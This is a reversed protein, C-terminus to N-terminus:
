PTVERVGEEPPLADVPAITDVPGVPAPIEGRLWRTVERSGRVRASDSAVTPAVAHMAFTGMNRVTSNETAVWEGTILSDNEARGAFRYEALGEIIVSDDAPSYRAIVAEMMDSGYEPPHGGDRVLYARGSIGDEPLSFVDDCYCPIRHGFIMRGLTDEGPTGGSVLVVWEGQMVDVPVRQRCGVLVLCCLLALYGFRTHVYM